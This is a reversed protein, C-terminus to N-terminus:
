TLVDLISEKDILEGKKNYKDIKESYYSFLYINNENIAIRDYYNNNLSVEKKFSLQM